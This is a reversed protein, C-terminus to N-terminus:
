GRPRGRQRFPAPQPFAAQGGAGAGHGGGGGLPRAGDAHGRGRGSAATDFPPAGRAHDQGFRSAGDHARWARGGGSDAPRAQRKRARGRRRLRVCRRMQPFPPCPCARVGGVTHPGFHAAGDAGGRGRARPRRGCRVRVRVGAPPRRACLGFAGGGSAGRGGLVVRGRFAARGGALPGGARNGGSHGGRHSPRLGAGDQAAVGPCPEGGSERGAHLVRERAPGRARARAGRPRGRRAHGGRVDRAPGGFGGSGRGGAAGGHGAPHREARLM